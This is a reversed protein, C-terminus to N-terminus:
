PRRELRQAERRRRGDRALTFVVLAVLIVASLGYAAAVFGAHSASWDM